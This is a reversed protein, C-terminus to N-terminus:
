PHEAPDQGSNLDWCAIFLAAILPDFFIRVPRYMAMLLGIAIGPIAGILYGVVVRYCTVATHWLLEGSMTLQWFRVGIDSPAPVFRRAGVGARLLVEWVILLVIPSILYLWREQSKRSMGSM